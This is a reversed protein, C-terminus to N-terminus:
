NKQDNEPKFEPMTEHNKASIGDRELVKKFTKFIIVMDIFINNNRVYELDYYFKEDWSISNRGSIQALGTIGPKVDHRKFEEKSYRSRYKEPLPRPGVLSLSGFLVNLLSPLEDLSTKRLFSGFKTIRDRDPLLEGNADQLSNMTRFKFLRFSKGNLGIREQHFFIPSGIFTAVLISIIALLPFTLPASFIVLVIDILRKLFRNLM